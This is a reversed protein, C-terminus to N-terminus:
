RLGIWLYLLLQRQLKPYGASPSAMGTWQRLGVREVEMLSGPGRRTCGPFTEMEMEMVSAWDWLSSIPHPQGAAPITTGRKQM